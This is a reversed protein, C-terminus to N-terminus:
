NNWSEEVIDKILKKNVPILSNDSRGLTQMDETLKLLFELSGIIERVQKEVQLKKNLEEFREILDIAKGTNQSNLIDELRQFRGDDKSLSYRLVRPMTFACALGHPVSFHATLPYSISHCISTRTQSIALGAFLSAEAMNERLSINDLNKLLKPLATFGKQLAKHALAESMSTMNRNWISEVAQNIADLGSSLTPSFPLKHSLEPDIFAADPYVAVGSISHKCKKNNDWVTAYPTVESGTGATTPLAYLPLAIDKPLSTAMGLLDLVSQSNVRPSLTLAFVKASDIASGGGFAVVCNISSKTLQNILNQLHNIDPNAQVSDMWVLNKACSIIKKLLPDSQIQKRGRVTCVILCTQNVLFNSLAARCGNGFHVKVPNYQEWMNLNYSM